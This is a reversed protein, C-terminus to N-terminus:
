SFVFTSVFRTVYFLLYSVPLLLFLLSFFPFTLLFTKLAFSANRLFYLIFPVLIKNISNQLLIPLFFFITAKVTTAVRLEM